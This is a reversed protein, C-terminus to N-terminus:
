NKTVSGRLKVATWAQRFIELLLAYAENPGDRQLLPEILALRPDQEFATAADGKTQDDLKGSFRWGLPGTVGRKTVVSDQNSSGRWELYVPRHDTFRAGEGVRLKSVNQLIGESAIFYDIVSGRETNSPSCLDSGTEPRTVYGDAM